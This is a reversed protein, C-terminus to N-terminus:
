HPRRARGLDPSWVQAGRQMGAPNVSKIWMDVDPLGTRNKDLFDQKDAITLTEGQRVVQTIRQPLRILSDDAGGWILALEAALSIAAEKGGAPPPTGYTFTVAFTGPETDPLDLRQCVPWGTKETPMSSATPRVRVLVKYDDVRYEEPPITVGDILVTDVSIVPYGGLEVEPPAVQCNHAGWAALSAAGYGTGYAYSCTGWSGYWGFGGMQGWSRWDVNSPRANPRTYAQIRGAFQRGTMGYLLESAVRAAGLLLKEDLTGCGPRVRIAAPDCWPQVVGVLPPGPPDIAPDYVDFGGATVVRATGTATAIWRYGLGAVPPVYDYHYQGTGDHAPTFPGDITLDPKIIILGLTTPDTDTGDVDITFTLHVAEGLLYDSM